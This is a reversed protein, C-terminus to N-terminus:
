LGLTRLLKGFFGSQTPNQYWRVPIPLREGDDGEPPNVNLETQSM